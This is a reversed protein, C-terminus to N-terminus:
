YRPLQIFFREPSYLAMHINLFSHLRFKLFFISIWPLFFVSMWIYGSCKGTINSFFGVSSLPFCEQIFKPSWQYYKARSIIKSSCYMPESSLINRGPYRPHFKWFIPIIEIINFSHAPNELLLIKSRSRCVLKCFFIIHSTRFLSCCDLLSRMFIEQLM